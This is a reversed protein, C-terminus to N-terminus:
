KYWERKRIGLMFGDTVIMSDRARQGEKEVNM